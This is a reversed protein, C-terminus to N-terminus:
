FEAYTLTISHVSSSSGSSEDAASSGGFIAVTSLVMIVVAFLAFLAKMRDAKRVETTRRSYNSMFM